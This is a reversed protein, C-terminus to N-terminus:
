VKNHFPYEHCDVKHCSNLRKSNVYKDVHFDDTTLFRVYSWHSEMQPFFTDCEYHGPIHTIYCEDIKERALYESYIQAGGIIWVEDFKKSDCLKDVEDISPCFYVPKHTSTQTHSDHGNRRSLVINTRHRLAKGISNWTNMGMVIANNGKGRTMQSFFQLDEPIHWPISCENGIGRTNCMAVIINTKMTCLYGM